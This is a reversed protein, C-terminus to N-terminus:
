GPRWSEEESCYNLITDRPSGGSAKRSLNDLVADTIGGAVQEIEVIDLLGDVLKNDLQLFAQLKWSYKDVATMLETEPVGEGHITVARHVFVPLHRIEVVRELLVKSAWKSAACGLARDAPPVFEKLSIEPLRYEGRLIFGCGHFSAAQTDLAPYADWCLRHHRHACYVPLSCIEKDWQINVSPTQAIHPEAAESEDRGTDRETHLKVFADECLDRVSADSLIQVAALSDIALNILPSQKDIKDANIKPSFIEKFNEWTMNDFSKNQLVMAANAVGGIPPMTTCLDQHVGELTRIDSVDLAMICIKVRNRKLYEVIGLNAKPHQSTIVLHRAGHKVTWQCISLGLDGPLGILLYTTQSSFPSQHDILCVVSEAIVVGLLKQLRVADDQHPESALPENETVNFLSRNMMDAKPNEYHCGQTVWLLEKANRFFTQIGEFRRQNM